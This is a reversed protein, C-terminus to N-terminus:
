LIDMMTFYVKKSFLLAIPIYSKIVQEGLTLLNVIRERRQTPTMPNKRKVGM